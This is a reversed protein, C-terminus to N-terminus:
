RSEEYEESRRPLALEVETGVGETSSVHIGCQEGFFLKLRNNVNRMAIGDSGHGTEWTGDPGAELKRHLRDLQEESMGVGDDEVVVFVSNEDSEIHIEIHGKGIKNEMGHFIANEVIPQLTMKPIMAGLVSSDDDHIFVQFDFKNSFRYQQIHIYTRINDLEESLKVIDARKSINYRFFRSLSETMDAIVENDDLIARARINELTNYLFHPNIQNQLQAFKMKTEMLERERDMAPPFSERQKSLETSRYIGDIDGLPVMRGKYGTGSAHLRLLKQVKQVYRVLYICLVAAAIFIVTLFVVMTKIGTKVTFSRSDSGFAFPIQM